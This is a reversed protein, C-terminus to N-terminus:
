TNHSSPHPLYWVLKCSLKHFRCQFDRRSSIIQNRAAFRRGCEISHNGLSPLHPTELKRSTTLIRTPHLLMCFCGKDISEDLVRCYISDLTEEERHHDFEEAEGRFAFVLCKDHSCRIRHFPTLQRDSLFPFPGSLLHGGRIFTFKSKESRERAPNVTRKETIPVLIRDRRRNQARADNAIM